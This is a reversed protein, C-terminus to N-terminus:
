SYMCYFIGHGVCVLTPNDVDLQLVFNFCVAITVTLITDSNIDYWSVKHEQTQTSGPYGAQSLDWYDFYGVKM